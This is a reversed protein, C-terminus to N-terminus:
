PTAMKETCANMFLVGLETFHLSHETEIELDFDIYDGPEDGSRIVELQKKDITPQYHSEILGLRKFNEIEYVAM